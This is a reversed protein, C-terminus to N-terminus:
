YNGEELPDLEHSFFASVQEAKHLVPYITM